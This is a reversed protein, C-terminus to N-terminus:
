KLPFKERQDKKDRRIKVEINPTVKCIAQRLVLLPNQKIRKNFRLGTICHIKEGWVNRHIKKVEFM